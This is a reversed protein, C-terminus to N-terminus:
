SFPNSDDPQEGPRVVRAHVHVREADEETSKEWHSNSQTFPRASLQCPVNARAVDPQGLGKLLARGLVLEPLGDLLAEAGLLEGAEIGLHPLGKWRPGAGSHLPRSLHPRYHPVAPVPVGGHARVEAVELGAELDLAWSGRLRLRM